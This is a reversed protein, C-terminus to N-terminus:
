PPPPAPPGHPPWGYPPAYGGALPPPWGWSAPGPGYAVPWAPPPTPEEQEFAARADGAFGLCYIVVTNVIVTILGLAIFAARSPAGFPFTLLDLLGGHDGPATVAAVLFLLGVPVGICALVLGSVRPGRKLSGMEIGSTIGLVASAGVAASSAVLGACLLNWFFLLVGTVAAWANPRASSALFRMSAVGTCLLYVAVPLWLTGEAILLV